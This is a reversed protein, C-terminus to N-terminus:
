RGVSVLQLQPRQLARRYWCARFFGTEGIGSAATEPAFPVVIRRDWSVENPARWRGEVDLAFEWTGNLSAWRDRQLQPRPYGRAIGESVLVEGASFSM